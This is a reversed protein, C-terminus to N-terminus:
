ELSLVLKVAKELDLMEKKTLKGIYNKLRSKDITRIQDAMAKANQESIKVEAEFPYIFKTNSTVPIVVVRSSSTNQINNSIIIAPRIKKTESGIALDLDVWYVDGRNINKDRTVSM